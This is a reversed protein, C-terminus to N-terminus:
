SMVESVLKGAMRRAWADAGLVAELDVRTDLLHSEMVREVVRFIGPFSLAGALFQEVAVENAANMVASMTGGMTVAHRAYNLSPFTKHDVPEFELRGVSVLDLRPVIANLREPYSLAYQIPLRMDTTAMQAMVTGDAYEVMSHVISQPHVVVDVQSMPVDFLWHAEITELAKNMLSASDVSIKRGMSWRPHKVAMEPTVSVLRQGNWGRFPGGSATLILRAIRPDNQGALCQFIANHESDVPLIRVGQRRAEAMVLDGAAVLTEKNALAIDHGSRIAALTPLLGRLGVVATVVVDAPTTAVTLLGDDGHLIEVPDNPGLLERLDAAESPRAVAVVEPRFRRVQQALVEVQTGAALACVSFQDAHHGIVDLTQTGVSGTSGLISVRRM